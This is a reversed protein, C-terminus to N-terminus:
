VKYKSSFEDLFLKLEDILPGSQKLENIKELIQSIEEHFKCVYISQLKDQFQQKLVDDLYSKQLRTDILKFSNLLLSIQKAQFVNSYQFDTLTWEYCFDHIFEHMGEIGTYKTVIKEKGAGQSYKYYFKDYESDFQNLLLFFIDAENKIRSKDNGDIQKTLAVFLLLSSIIGLVPATIGGITSGINSTNTLNYRNIFVPLTFIYVTLFCLMILLIAIIIYKVRM